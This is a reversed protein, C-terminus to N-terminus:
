AARQSGDPPHSAVRHKPLFAWGPDGGRRQAHPNQDLRRQVAEFRPSTLGAVLLGVSVVAVVFDYSWQTTQVILPALVGLPAPSAHARSRKSIVLTSDRTRTKKVVATRLLIPAVVIFPVERKTSTHIPTVCAGELRAISTPKPIAGWPSRNPLLCDSGSRHCPTQRLLLRNGGLSCTGIM